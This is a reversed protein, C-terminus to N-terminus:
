HGAHSGERSKYKPFKARSRANSLTVVIRNQTSAQNDRLISAVCVLLASLESKVTVATLLQKTLSLLHWMTSFLRGTLDPM